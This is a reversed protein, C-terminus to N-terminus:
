QLMPKTVFWSRDIRRRAQWSGWVIALGALLAMLWAVGLLTPVGASTIQVFGLLVFPASLTLFAGAVALLLWIWRNVEATALTWFTFLSMVLGLQHLAIGLYAINFGIALATRDVDPDFAGAQVQSFYNGSFILARGVSVDEAVMLGPVVLGALLIVGVGITFRLRRRQARPHEDDSAAVPHM